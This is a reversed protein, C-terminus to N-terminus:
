EESNAVVVTESDGSILSEIEVNEENLKEMEFNILDCVLAVEEDSLEPDLKVIDEVLYMEKQYAVYFKKGSVSGLAGDLDMDFKVHFELDNILYIEDMSVITKNNEETNTESIEEITYEATQVNSGDPKATPSDNVPAIAELFVTDVLETSILSLINFLM